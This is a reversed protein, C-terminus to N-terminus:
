SPSMGGGPPNMTVVGLGAAVATQLGKKRFDHNLINYGLTLGEFLDERVIAAIADGSAHVTCCIHEILGEERAKLAGDYPGGARSILQLQDLDM